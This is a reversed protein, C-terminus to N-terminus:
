RVHLTTSPGYVGRMWFRIPQLRVHYWGPPLTTAVADHQYASLLYRPHELRAGDVRIRGQWMRDAVYPGAWSFRVRTGRTTIRAEPGPNWSIHSRQARPTAPLVPAGNVTLAHLALGFRQALVTDGTPNPHTGDTTWRQPDWGPAATHAVSIPLGEKRWRAVQARMLQNYTVNSAGPFRTRSPHFVQRANMVEGIVIQTTADARWVADVYRKMDAFVTSPKAGRALDNTGMLVVLVDPQYDSVQRGVLSDERGFSDGGIADHQRDSWPVLYRSEDGGVSSRPGVFDVPANQRRFEEWLRLRWTYDGSYQQTISDGAIMIRPAPTTAGDAASPVAPALLGSLLAAALAVKLPTRM